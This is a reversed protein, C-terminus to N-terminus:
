LRAWRARVQARLNVDARLDHAVRDLLDVAGLPRLVQEALARLEAVVV